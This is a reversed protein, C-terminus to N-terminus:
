GGTMGPFVLLGIESFMEAFAKVTRFNTARSEIQTTICKIYMFSFMPLASLHVFFPRISISISIQQIKASVAKQDRQAIM